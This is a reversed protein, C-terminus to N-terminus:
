ILYMILTLGWKLTNAKLGEVVFGWLLWPLKGRSQRTTSPSVQAEVSTQKSIEGQSLSTAISTDSASDSIASNPPLVPAYVEAAFDEFMTQEVHQQMVQDLCKAREEFYTHFFQKQSRIVRSANIATARVLGPLVRYDVIAGNFLPGFLQIEPKKDIHIRYLGSPLPYIIILVDGFDTPIIGRRYDRTHESWVIHVEDNGLHRMKIHMSETSGSPIRTSVHFLIECTSDAYYPATDGTSKNQQLGGLFGKHSELDVEWGLGTVFDEFAKSGGPNSLISNKDEQGEAVYIMAFKHTERCKQADLNKLERLLKDSKKLLDFHSRKEWSLLGMQDLLMRCMQFPSIPDQIDMPMQPKALMSADNKHKNYYELEAEKQHLVMDKMMTEAHENLDEPIPAELNLPVGPILLCEPSTHGIYGLLDNLNDHHEGTTEFVPLDSVNRPQLILETTQRQLDSDEQIILPELEADKSLGHLARANEFYSGKPCWPPGYLVSSEWCYKGTLDRLIVRCVTKATTLGATM